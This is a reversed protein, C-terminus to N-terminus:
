RVMLLERYNNIKDQLSMRAYRPSPSPLRGLNIFNPFLLKFHKEVFGSTFLVRIQPYKKIILAIAIDNYAEIQLGEDQNNDQLRYASLIIDVMGIGKLELLSKKQQINKLECQYVGSMIKWFQNRSTGYFWDDKSLTKARTIDRGPFSGVIILKPKKPVFAKFPHLEIEM